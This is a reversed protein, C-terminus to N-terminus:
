RRKWKTTDVIQNRKDKYEDAIYRQLSDVVEKNRGQCAMSIDFKTLKPVCKALRDLYM